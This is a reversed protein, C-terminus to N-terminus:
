TTLGYKLEDVVSITINSNTLMLKYKINAKMSKCM